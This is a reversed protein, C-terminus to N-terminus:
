KKIEKLMLDAFVGYGMTPDSVLVHTLAGIMKGNQIIPSGSMGQIIGGTKELLREDTVKVIMSKNDENNNKFIKQIRVNYEEKKGDELTCIIKADGEKIENRLAVKIAKSTDINLENKNKIKGYVGFRTNSYVTGLNKSDEITGEIRGPNNEEGKKINVIEATVFEGSSIDLMEETDVDQIGHGLSAITNTTEDYFSLTGVGAGADRVWIGLKYTNKSTKVPTITKEVEEGGKIYTMSMTKGNTKGVCELLDETSEIKEDNIKIISDGQEIGAEEYPKYIKNDEGKIESIGVVLVGKTYLKLGVLDGLPVVKTEPIINATITKLNVGLLSLNYEKKNDLSNNNSVKDDNLKTSAEIADDSKEEVKVGAITELSLEDDEFLIVSDPISTINTVYALLILLLFIIFLLILNKKSFFNLYPRVSDDAGVNYQLIKNFFLFM